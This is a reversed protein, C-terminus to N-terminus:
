KAPKATFPRGPAPPCHVLQHGDPGFYHTCVRKIQRFAAELLLTTEAPTEDRYLQAQLRDGAALVAKIMLGEPSDPNNFLHPNESIRSM